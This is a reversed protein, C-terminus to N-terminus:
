GAGASCCGGSGCGASTARRGTSRPSVASADRHQVTRSADATHPPHPHEARRRQQGQSRAARRRRRRGRGRDARRGHGRRRGARAGRGRGRRGRGRRGRGRRGLGSRCRRRSGSGGRRGRGASRGGSRRPLLGEDLGGALRAVRHHVGVVGVAQGDAMRALPQEDVRGGVLRHRHRDICRDDAHARRRAVAEGHDGGRGVAVGLHERHVGVALDVRQARDGTSPAEAASPFTGTAAAM